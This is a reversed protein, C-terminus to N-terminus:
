ERWRGERIAEALGLLGWLLFNETAQTAVYDAIRNATEREATEWTWTPKPKM